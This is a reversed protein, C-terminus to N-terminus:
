RGTEKESPRGLHAVERHQELRHHVLHENLLPRVTRSLGAAAQDDPERVHTGTGGHDSLDITRDEGIRCSLNHRFRADRQYVHERAVIGRPDRTATAKPNEDDTAGSREGVSYEGPYTMHLLVEACREASLSRM